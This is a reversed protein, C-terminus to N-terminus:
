RFSILGSKSHAGYRSSVPVSAVVSELHFAILDLTESFLSVETTSGRLPTNSSSDGSAGMLQAPNLDVYPMMSPALSSVPFPQSITPPWSIILGNQGQVPQGGATSSSGASVLGDSNGDRGDPLDSTIGAGNNQSETEKGFNLSGELFHNELSDEFYLTSGNFYTTEEDGVRGQTAFDTDSLFLEEMHSDTAMESQGNAKTM